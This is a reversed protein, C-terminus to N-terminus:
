FSKGHTLSRSSWSNRIRIPQYSAEFPWSSRQHVTFDVRQSPCSTPSLHRDLRLILMTFRMRARMITLKPHFPSVHTSLRQITSLFISVGMSDLLSASSSTKLYFNLELWVKVLLMHRHIIVQPAQDVCLAM